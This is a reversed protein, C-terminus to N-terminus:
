VSYNILSKNCIKGVYSDKDNIAQKGSTPEHLRWATERPIGCIIGLGIKIFSPIYIMAGSGM